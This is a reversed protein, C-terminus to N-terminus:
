SVCVPMRSSCSRVMGYEEGSYLAGNGSEFGLDRAKLSENPSGLRQVMWLDLERPIRYAWMKMGKRRSNREESMCINFSHFIDASPCNDETRSDYPVSRSHGGEAASTHSDFIFFKSVLRPVAAALNSAPNVLETESRQAYGLQAIDHV